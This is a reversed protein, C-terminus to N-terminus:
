SGPERAPPLFGESVLVRAIGAAYLAHGQANWHPDRFADNMLSVPHHGALFSWTDFVPVDVERGVEELRMLAMREPPRNLQNQMFIVLRAGHRRALTAMRGLAARSKLWGRDDPSFPMGAAKLKRQRVAYRRVGVPDPRELRTQYVFAAWEFLRSRLVLARYLRTSLRTASERLVRFSESPDNDNTVYLLVILDPALEAIHRRLFREEALTNWGAVAAAVVDIRGAFLARVRAPFILEQEVGPGLTVSDGLFLVRFTGPPKPVVPEDDRMGLSNFRLTVGQSLFSSRAPHRLYGGDDTVLMRGYLQMEEMLSHVGFGTWRLVLELLGLTLLTALAALALTGFASRLARM